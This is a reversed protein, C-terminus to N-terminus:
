GGGYGEVKVQIKESRKEVANYTTKLSVEFM